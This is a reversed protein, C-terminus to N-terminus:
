DPPPSQFYDCDEFSKHDDHLRSLTVFLQSSDLGPSVDENKIFDKLGRSQLDIALDGSRAIKLAEYAVKMPQKKEHRRCLVFHTGPELVTGDYKKKTKCLPNTFQGFWPTSLCASNYFYLAIKHEQFRILSESRPSKGTRM